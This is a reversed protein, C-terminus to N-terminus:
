STRCDPASGYDGSRGPRHYQGGRRDRHRGSGGLLLAKEDRIAGKGAFTESVPIGCGQALAQLEEQADSYHVGGGAIMVPRRAAELLTVAERIGHREPPRREVRWHRRDFFSAPYDYAHAQVDQPLAITVAGTDAPDTLVRLAEPLATLLQEPRTIRDFFRSVPRLCDTVGIDASVPHELQQLM